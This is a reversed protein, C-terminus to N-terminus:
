DDKYSLYSYLSATVPTLITSPSINEPYCFGLAVFPAFNTPYEPDLSDEFELTQPCKIRITFHRYRIPDQQHQTTDPSYGNALKIRKDAHVRFMERNVDLLAPIPNGDYPTKVSPNGPTGTNNCYDLLNNAIDLKLSGQNLAYYSKASKASLCFLRIEPTTANGQSVDIAVYGKLVLYTPRIKSGQRQYSEAGNTVQPLVGYIDSSGIANNFSTKNWITKGATKTEEKRGLVRKVMTLVQAKQTDRMQPVSVTKSIKVKTKKGTMKKKRRVIALLPRGLRM